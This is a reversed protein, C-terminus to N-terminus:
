LKFLNDPIDYNVQARLTSNIFDLNELMKEVEVITIFTSTDKAITDSIIKNIETKGYVELNERALSKETEEKFESLYNEKYLSAKYKPNPCDQSIVNSEGFGTDVSDIISDQNKCKSLHCKSSTNNIVPKDNHIFGINKNNIVDSSKTYTIECTEIEPEQKVLLSKSFTPQSPNGGLQIKKQRM